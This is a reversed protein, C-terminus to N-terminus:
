FAIVDLYRLIFALAALIFLFLGFGSGAFIALLLGLLGIGAIIKAKTTFEFVDARFKQYDGKYHKELKNLTKMDKKSMAIEGTKAMEKMQAFSAVKKKTLTKTQGAETVILPTNEIVPEDVEINETPVDPTIPHFVGAMTAQVPTEPQISVSAQRAGRCSVFLIALLLLYKVSQM